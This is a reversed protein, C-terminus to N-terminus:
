RRMAGAKKTTKKKAGSPKTAPTKKKAAKKKAAPLKGAKGGRTQQSGLASTYYEIYTKVPTRRIAEAVVDLAVDELRKFRICCKGADLKKGTKAWAEHFWKAQATLDAPNGREYCGCYLGMLYLSIYNKQSALGAFPLPQKPDCHYGAPFVTHPVYWGIMGYQMGEEYGKDLNANVVKRVAEVAARRDTPLSALYDKVTAAKSQMHASYRGGRVTM